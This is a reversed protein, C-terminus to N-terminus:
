SAPSPPRRQGAITRGSVNVGYQAGRLNVAKNLLVSEAYAGAVVNVTSATVRDVGEQIRATM